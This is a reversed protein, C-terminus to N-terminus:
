GEASPKGNSAPLQGSSAGTQGEAAVQVYLVLPHGAVKMEARVGGTAIERLSPLPRLLEHDDPVNEPRLIVHLEVMLTEHEVYKKFAALAAHLETSPTIAAARIRDTYECGMEKRQNQVAHVVERALGEAILEATLETSLVVVSSRGQAATWGDKAQLRVQLEGADLTVPGDSLMFTVKDDAALTNMLSAADTQALLTKLAPLRRGLRPGLRKLDPLVSYTIYQDAKAAFEVRKVNLEEAILQAHEELWGQHAADALVVEVLALPQRVKLKASMRASRGLSVIERVLAM